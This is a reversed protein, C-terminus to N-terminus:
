SEYTKCIRMLRRLLAGFKYMDICTDIDQRCLIPEQHLQVNGIVKNDTLQIFISNEEIKGMMLSSSHLVHLTQAIQYTIRLAVGTPLPKSMQIIEALSKYINSRSSDDPIYFRRM